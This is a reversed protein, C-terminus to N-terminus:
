RSLSSVVGVFVVCSGFINADSLPIFRPHLPSTFDVILLLVALICINCADLILGQRRIVKGSFSPSDHKAMDM